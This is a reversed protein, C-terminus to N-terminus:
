FTLMSKVSYYVAALQGCIGGSPSFGETPIVVHSLSFRVTFFHFAFLSQILLSGFRM